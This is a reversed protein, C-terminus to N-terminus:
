FGDLRIRYNIMDENYFSVARYSFTLTRNDPELHQDSNLDMVDTKTSLTILAVRPIPKDDSDYVANYISLGRDTGIYIEENSTRIMANRNIENGILGQESYYHKLQNSQLLYVGKDSGIWIDDNNVLIQYIPHNIQHGSLGAEVISDNVLKCLGGITGLYISDNIISVAYIDTFNSNRSSIFRYNKGDWIGLGTNGLLYLQGNVQRIKRTQKKTELVKRFRGNQYNFITGGGHSVYLKGNFEAVSSFHFLDSPKSWIIQKNDLQGLGLYDSILFIQGNMEVADNIRSIGSPREPKKYILTHSEIQGDKFFSYSNNAGMLFRNRSIEIITSVEDELFGDKSTYNTFRFSPIKMLGRFSTIWLNDQHDFYLLSNGFRMEVGSTKFLSHNQNNLDYRHIYNTSRFYLHNQKVKLQALDFNGDQIFNNLLLDTRGDTWRCLWNNGLIYYSDALNIIDLPRNFGELFTHFEGSQSNLRIIRDKVFVFLEGGAYKLLRFPIEKLSEPKEITRWSQDTLSYHFLGNNGSLFFQDKILDNFAFLKNDGLSDPLSIFSWKGNEYLAAKWSYLGLGFALIGGNATKALRTQKVPLNLSQPFDDWKFGDFRSIGRGHAVWILGDNDEIVDSIQRSILGDNETYIRTNVTQSLVFVLSILFILQQIM